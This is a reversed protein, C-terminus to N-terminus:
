YFKMLFTKFDSVDTKPLQTTKKKLKKSNNQRVQKRYETSQNIVVLYIKNSNFTVHGELAM